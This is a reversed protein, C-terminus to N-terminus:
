LQFLPNRKRYMGYVFKMWKGMLSDQRVLVGDAITPGYQSTSPAHYFLRLLGGDTGVEFRTNNGGMSFFRRFDNDTNSTSIWTEFTFNADGSLPNTLQVFDDIGDFSLARNACDQANTTLSFFLNFVMILLYYSKAKLFFQLKSSKM